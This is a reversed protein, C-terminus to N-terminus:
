EKNPLSEDEHKNTRVMALIARALTQLMSVAGLFSFGLFLGLAGGFEAMFSEFPYVLVEEVIQTYESVAWLSMSLPSGPFNERTWDEFKNVFKYQKYSCGTLKTIKSTASNM